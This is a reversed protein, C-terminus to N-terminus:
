QPTVRIISPATLQCTATMQGTLRTCDATNNCGQPPPSIVAGTGDVCLGQTALNQAAGATNALTDSHFSEMIGVISSLNSGARASLRAVAYQTQLPGHSPQAITSTLPRNGIDDVDFSAWCSINTQGTFATEFEDFVTFQIVRNVSVAREFDMDCPLLTLATHVESQGTDCIECDTDVACSGAGNDCTGTVCTGPCQGANNCVFGTGECTGGNGSAEIVPDNGGDPIFNMVSSAPCANFETNNLDLNQDASASNMTVAIGDYKSADGSDAQGPERLLAATGTLKNGPAPVTSGVADTEYCVLAGTFGVPVPPILGPDLGSGSQGLGDTPDVPRGDSVSWHTSQKKTLSLFFDTIDCLPQGSRSLAGDLYFCHVNDVLNSTNTIQIVTDRGGERVVKPFILLSGPRETSVDAHAAGAVFMCLGLAAGFMVARVGQITRM